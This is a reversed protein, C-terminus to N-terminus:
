SFFAVYVSIITRFSQPSQGELNGVGDLKSLESGGSGESRESTYETKMNLLYSAGREWKVFIKGTSNNSVSWRLM